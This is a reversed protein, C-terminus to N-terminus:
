KRGEYFSGPKIARRWKWKRNKQLIRVPKGPRMVEIEGIGDFPEGVHFTQTTGFAWNGNYKELPCARRQGFASTTLLVLCATIMLVKRLDFRIKTMKNKLKSM